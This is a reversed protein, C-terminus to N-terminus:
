IVGQTTLGVLPIFSAAARAFTATAPLPFATDMSFLGLMPSERATGAIRMVTGVTGNFVLALYFRGPGIMTDTIDVVQIAVTGSQATSGTSILRTGVEDYIGIDFSNSAAAGNVIFLQKVLVPVSLRFPVFYARNASQWTATGFSAWVGTGMATLTPGISELSAPTITANPVFVGRQPFDM